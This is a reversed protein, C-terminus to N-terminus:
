NPPSIIQSRDQIIGNDNFPVGESELLRRKRGLAEPSSSGGFGRLSGDSAIVRHCPVEPAFPNHRLAQAVARACTCGISQGLLAYTSVRGAPIRCTAEYVRARFPTVSPHSAIEM